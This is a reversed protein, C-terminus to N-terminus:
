IDALKENEEQAMPALAHLRRACSFVLVADANAAADDKIKKKSEYFKM